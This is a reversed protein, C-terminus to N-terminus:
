AYSRNSSSRRQRDFRRDGLTEERQQLHSFELDALERRRLGCGILFSRETLCYANDGIREVFLAPSFRVNKVAARYYASPTLMVM